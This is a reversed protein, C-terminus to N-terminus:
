ALMGGKLKSFEKVNAPSRDVFEKYVAWVSDPSPKFGALSFLWLKCETFRFNNPVRQRGITCWKEAETRDNLDVSNQFLRWITRDIDKLYPDSDYACLCLDSSRADRLDSSCVDSSRDSLCRTHRRRSSFFFYVSVQGYG